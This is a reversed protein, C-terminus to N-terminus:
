HANSPTHRIALRAEPIKLWDNLLLRLARALDGDCVHWEIPNGAKVYELAALQQQALVAFYLGGILNADERSAPHLDFREGRLIAKFLRAYLLVGRAADYGDFMTFGVVYGRDAPAGTVQRVYALEEADLPLGAFVHWEDLHYKDFVAQLAAGKAVQEANDPDPVTDGLCLLVRDDGLRTAAYPLQQPLCPVVLPHRLYNFWGARLRRPRQHDKVAAKFFAGPWVELVDPDWARVAAEVIARMAAGNLFAGGGTPFTMSVLAPSDAAGLDFRLQVHDPRSYDMGGKADRSASYLEFSFGGARTSEPTLNGDADLGTVNREKKGPRAVQRLQGALDGLDHRLPEFRTKGLMEWYALDPHAQKLELLFRRVGEVAQGFNFPRNYVELNLKITQM